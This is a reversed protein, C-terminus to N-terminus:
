TKSNPRLLAYREELTMARLKKLQKDHNAYAEDEVDCRKLVRAIGTLVSAYFTEFMVDGFGRWVTALVHEDFHDMRLLWYDRDRRLAEYIEENIPEGARNRYETM